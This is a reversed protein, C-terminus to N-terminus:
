HCSHPISIGSLMWFISVVEERVKMILDVPRTFWVETVIVATMSMLSFAYPSTTNQFSSHCPAPLPFRDPCDCRSARRARPGAEASELVLAVAHARYRLVAVRRGIEGLFSSVSAASFCSSSPLASTTVTANGASAALTRTTSSGNASARWTSFVTGNSTSASTGNSSSLMTSEERIRESAGPHTSPAQPDRRATPSGPARRRARRRRARDASRSARHRPGRLARTSRRAPSEDVDAVRARQDRECALPLREGRAREEAATAVDRDRQRPPESERVGVRLRPLVVDPDAALATCVGAATSHSSSSTVAARGTGVISGVASGSSSSM